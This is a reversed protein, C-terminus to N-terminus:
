DQSYSNDMVPQRTNIVVLLETTSPEMTAKDKSVGERFVAQKTQSHRTEVMTVLHAEEQLAKTDKAM